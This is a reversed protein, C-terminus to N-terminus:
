PGVQALPGAMGVPGPQGLRALNNALPWVLPKISTLHLVPGSMPRTHCRTTPDKRPKPPEPLTQHRTRGSDPDPVPKTLDKYPDPLVPLPISPTQHRLPQYPGALSRTATQDSPSRTFTQHAQYLIALILTGYPRTPDPILSTPDTPEEFPRTPEDPDPAFDPPLRITSTRTPRNPSQYRFLLPGTPDVLSQYPSINTPPGM